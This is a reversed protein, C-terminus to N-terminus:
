KSKFRSTLGSMQNLVSTAYEPHCVAIVVALGVVLSLFGNVALAFHAITAIVLVYAVLLLARSKVKIGGNIEVTEEKMRTSPPPRDSDALPKETKSLDQQKIVEENM